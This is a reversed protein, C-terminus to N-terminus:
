VFICACAVRVCLIGIPSVFIICAFCLRVQVPVECVLTAHAMFYAVYKKWVCVCVCMCMRVSCSTCAVLVLLMIPEVEVSVTVLFSTDAKIVAEYVNSTTSFQAGKRVLNEVIKDVWADQDDDRIVYSNRPLSTIQRAQVTDPVHMVKGRAHQIIRDSDQMLRHEPVTRM